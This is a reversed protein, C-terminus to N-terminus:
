AVIANIGINAISAFDIFASDFDIIELIYTCCGPCVHCECWTFSFPVTDNVRVIDPHPAVYSNDCCFAVHDNSEDAKKEFIWTALPVKSSNNCIRSLQFIIGIFYKGGASSARFNILSSFDIKVTPEHLDSNNLSVTGVVLAPPQWSSKSDCGGIPLILGAGTGCNLIVNKHYLKSDSDVEGCSLNKDDM